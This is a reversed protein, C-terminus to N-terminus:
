RRRTKPLAKETKNRDQMWRAAGILVHATPVVAWGIKKGKSRDIAKQSFREVEDAHDEFWKYGAYAFTAAQAGRGRLKSWDFGDGAGPDSRVVEGRVPGKENSDTM